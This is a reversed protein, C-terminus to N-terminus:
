AEPADSSRSIDCDARGETGDAAQEKTILIGFGRQGRKQVLSVLEPAALADNGHNEDHVLKEPPELLHGVRSGAGAEVLPEHRGHDGEAGEDTHSRNDTM